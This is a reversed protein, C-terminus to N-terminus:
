MKTRVYALPSILSSVGRATLFTFLLNASADLRNRFTHNHRRTTLPSSSVEESQKGGRAWRWSVLLFYAIGTGLIATMAYAAQRHNVNPPTAELDERPAFKLWASCVLCLQFVVAGPNFAHSLQQPSLDTARISKFYLWPQQTFHPLLSQYSVPSVVPSVLM